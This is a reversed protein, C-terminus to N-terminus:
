SVYGAVVPEPTWLVTKGWVSALLDLGFILHTYTIDAPNLSKAGDGQFGEQKSERDNSTGKKSRQSTHSREQHVQVLGM